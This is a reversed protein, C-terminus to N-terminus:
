AGEKQAANRCEIHNCLGSRLIVCSVPPDPHEQEYRQKASLDIWTFNGCTCGWASRCSGLPYHHITRDHGCACLDMM